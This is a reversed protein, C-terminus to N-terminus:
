RFFNMTIQDKWELSVISSGWLGRFGFYNISFSWVVITLIINKLLRRDQRKHIGHSYKLIAFASLCTNFFLYGIYVTELVFKPVCWMCFLNLLKCKVRKFMFGSM